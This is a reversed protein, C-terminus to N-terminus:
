NHTADTHKKSFIDQVAIGLAKALKKQEDDKSAVIENEILSIRSQPIGTKNSLVYQSIRRLVRVERLKNSMTLRRAFFFGQM